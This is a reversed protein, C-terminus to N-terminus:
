ERRSRLTAPQSPVQVATVLGVHGGVDTGKPPRGYAVLELAASSLATLLANGAITLASIYGSSLAGNAAYAGTSLPVMYNAARMFRRGHISSTKWNIRAGNGAPYTGAATGTVNSPTSTLPVVNQILASAHEIVTAYSQFSWVVGAPIYSASASYFNRIAAAAAQCDAATITAADQRQWHFRSIGTAGIDGAVTVGQIAIQVM